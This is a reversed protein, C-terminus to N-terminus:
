RVALPIFYCGAFGAAASIACGLFFLSCGIGGSGAASAKGRAILADHQCRGYHRSVLGILLPWLPLSYIVGDMGPWDGQPRWKAVLWGIALPVFPSIFLTLLWLWFARRSRSEAAHLIDNM